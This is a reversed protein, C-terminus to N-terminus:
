QADSLHLGEEFASVDEAQPRWDCSCLLQVVLPVSRRMKVKQQLCLEACPADEGCASVAAM